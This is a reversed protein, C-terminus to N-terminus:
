IVSTICIFILCPVKAVLGRKNPVFIYIHLRMVVLKRFFNYHNGYNCPFISLVYYSYGNSAPVSRNNVLICYTKPNSIFRTCESHAGCSSSLHSVSGSWKNVGWVLAVAISNSDSQISCKNCVYVVLQSDSLSFYLQMKEWLLNFFISICWWM